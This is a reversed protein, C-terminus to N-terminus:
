KSLVEVQKPLMTADAVLFVLLAALIIGFLKCVTQAMKAKYVTYAM